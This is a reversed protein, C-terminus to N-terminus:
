PLFAGDAQLRARLADTSVQRFDDGGQKLLLGAAAGAAQGMTMCPPMVRIASHAERDASVSRGAVIVNKLGQPLLCGYPIGHFEGKSYDSDRKEKEWSWEGKRERLRNAWSPHIDIFFSNLSIEDKFRRRTHYDGVSLVYEGVIRRSERVGLLSATQILEAHRSAPLHKRFADRFQKAELRGDIMGQTVSRVDAGDIDWLHGSNMRFGPYFFSDKILPFDPDDIIIQRFDAPAGETSVGGMVMCLSAPQMDGDKDGKVTRAGAFHCLDADGTCDIFLRARVASLGDKNAIVAEKVVGGPATAVGAMTTFFLLDLGSGMALGDLVIKMAEPDIGGMAKIDDSPMRGAYVHLGDLIERALGRHIFKEGDHFGCWGPVLGATAMGGLMGTAEVLLTRAGARAAAVAACVGAPGGGAVLVDYGEIKAIGPIKRTNVDTGRVPSVGFGM